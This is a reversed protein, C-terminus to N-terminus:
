LPCHESIFHLCLVYFLASLIKLLNKALDFFFKITNEAKKCSKQRLLRVIQGMYHWEFVNRLFRGEFMEFM